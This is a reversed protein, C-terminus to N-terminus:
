RCTPPSIDAPEYVDEHGNASATATPPSGPQIVVEVDIDGDETVASQWATPVEAPSIDTRWSIHNLIGLWEIGCRVDMEYLVPFGTEIIEGSYVFAPDPPTM